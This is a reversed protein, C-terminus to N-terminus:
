LRLESIYHHCPCFVLTFDTARLCQVKLAYNVPEGLDRGLFTNKITLTKPTSLNEVRLPTQSITAKDSTAKKLIDSVALQNQETIQATQLIEDSVFSAECRGTLAFFFVFCGTILLIKKM